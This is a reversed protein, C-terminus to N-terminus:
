NKVQDTLVAMALAVPRLAALIMWQWIPHWKRFYQLMSETFMRQARYRALTKASQGVFDVCEANGFYAVKMGAQRVRRCYDVEEFWFFFREDLLGIKRLAERRICFFSGRISDVEAYKKTHDFDRMLYRDLIRPFLHPLKLLLAAQDRLTPFRRAHPVTEMKENVLHCGAVGVSEHERMKGAMIALTDPFLRMDQNLLLVFDGQSQRLAQNNARAFGLNEGNEILTVQSFDKRVMEVTGDKSANDVVFVELSVGASAFLANLCRRLLDQGNWSVIIVSIDM